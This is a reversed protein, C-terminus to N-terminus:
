YMYDLTVGGRNRRPCRIVQSIMQTQLIATSLCRQVSVYKKGNKSTYSAHKDIGNSYRKVTSQSSTNPLWQSANRHSVPSWQCGPGINTSVTSTDMAVCTSSYVISISIIREFDDLVLADFTLVVIGALPEWRRPWSFHVM